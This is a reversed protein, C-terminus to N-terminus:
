FEQIQQIEFNPALNLSIKLAEIPKTLSAAMEMFFKNPTVQGHAWRAATKLM